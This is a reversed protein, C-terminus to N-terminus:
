QNREKYETLLFRTRWEPCGQEALDAALDRLEEEHLSEPDHAARYCASPKGHECDAAPQGELALACERCPLTM